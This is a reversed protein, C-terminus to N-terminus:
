WGWREPHEPSKGDAGAVHCRGSTIAAALLRLFYACPEASQVLGAQAAAAEKLAKECRWDLEDAEAPDIAGCWIAFRLFFQMGLMLDAVIGPVRAHQGEVKAQDRLLAMEQRLQGRITAYRPALWQVFGALSEAYLGAAADEQCATLRQVDVDGPAFELNFMRARLSEGRPVDEGTSLLLGRPTKPPRVTGDTRCRGRGSRNGQGRVLKDAERHYRQVDATSGTPCFDDVLLLVDKAAHALSENSYATSGWSCPVHGADMEAGYHQQALAAVSTKFTGTSGCCHPTFDVPGLAARYASALLPFSIHDPALGDLVGLSARVATTLAAGSPPTPLLFHALPEPLSVEIGAVPGDKGIAGGAHLYVWQGNIERWGTHGYLVRRPVDPSLKQIAARLHDVASAGASVVARSGWAALTWRMSAFEAATVETRPLPTGDFLHGEIALTLRQEGGDDHIVEETIRAVFNALTVAVPGQPTLRLHVISRGAVRYEGVTTPLPKAARIKQRFPGLALELDRLRVHSSAADRCCAFSAKDEIQVRALDRLLEENLFLAKVGEVKIKALATDLRTCVAAADLSPEAAKGNASPAASHPMAGRTGYGQRALEKAAAGFDGNHNILTYAAFKSYSTCLKAGNAGQFPYANESFNCFL